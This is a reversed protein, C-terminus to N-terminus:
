ASREALRAALDGFRYTPQPPGDQRTQRGVAEVRGRSAWARVRGELREQTKPNVGLYRVAYGAFETATVLHGDLKATLADRLDAPDHETTCDRCRVVTADVPAFLDASCETCAGLFVREPPADVVRWAQTVAYHIESCADGAAPHVILDSHRTILWRALDALTDRPGRHPDPELDRVWGTLTNRLLWTRESARADFPLPREAAKTAPGHDRSAVRATQMELEAQLAPVHALDRELTSACTRCITWGRHPQGDCDPTPCTGSM